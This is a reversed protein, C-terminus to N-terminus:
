LGGYFHSFIVQSLFLKIVLLFYRLGFNGSIHEKLPNVGGDIVLLEHALDNVHLFILCSNLVSNNGILFIEPLTSLFFPLCDIYWWLM